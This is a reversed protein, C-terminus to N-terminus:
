DLNLLSLNNPNNKEELKSYNLYSFNNHINNIRDYEENYAM